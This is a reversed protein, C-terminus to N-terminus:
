RPGLVTAGGGAQGALVCGKGAQRVAPRCSRVVCKISSTSKSNPSGHYRCRSPFLSKWPPLPVHVSRATGRWGENCRNNRGINCSKPQLQLVSFM